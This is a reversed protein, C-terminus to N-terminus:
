TTFILQTQSDQAKRFTDRYYVGLEPLAILIGKKMKMSKM